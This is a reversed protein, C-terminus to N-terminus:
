TLLFFFYLSVLNMCFQFGMEKNFTSKFIIDFAKESFSLFSRGSKIEECCVAYTLFLCIPSLPLNIVSTISIALIFINYPKRTVIFM